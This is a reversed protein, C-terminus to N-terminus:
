PEQVRRSPKRGIVVLAAVPIELSTATRRYPECLDRLERRIRHELGRPQATVLAATRVTSTAMGDYLEDSSGVALTGTVPVLGFDTFGEFLRRLATPDTPLPQDPAPVHTALDGAVRTIAEAVVGNHRARTPADWIATALWGGTRVVRRMEKLGAVPDDLHNLYFSAVCADFSEDAFPLARGDARVLMLGADAGRANQLM